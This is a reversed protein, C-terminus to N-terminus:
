KQHQWLVIKAVLHELFFVIMGKTLNENIIFFIFVYSDVSNADSVDSRHDSISDITNTLSPQEMM